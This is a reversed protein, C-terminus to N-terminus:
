LQESPQSRPRVNLVIAQVNTDDLLDTMQVEVWVWNGQPDHVRSDVLCTKSHGSVLGACAQEFRGADDPNLFTLVSQGIVDGESYGLASHIVRLVTLDPSLLLIGERCAYLLTEFFRTNSESIKELKRLSANEDELESIRELLQPIQLEETCYSRLCAEGPIEAPDLM